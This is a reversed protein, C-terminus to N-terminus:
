AISAEVKSDVSNNTRTLFTSSRWERGEYRWVYEKRFGYVKIYGRVEGKCLEAGTVECKSETWNSQAPSSQCLAFM